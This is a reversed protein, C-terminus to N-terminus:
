SGLAPPTSAAHLTRAVCDLLESPQFPKAVTAQVQNRDTIAHPNGSLMIIPLDPAGARIRRAVAEGDMDPMARDLIVAGWRPNQEFASLAERGGNAPHVQYGADGLIRTLLRLVIPEDDVVLINISSPLM